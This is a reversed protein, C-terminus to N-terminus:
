ARSCRCVRLASYEVDDAPLTDRWCSTVDVLKAPLPDFLFLEGGKRRLYCVTHGRYTVVVGARSTSSAELEELLGALPCILLNEIEQREGGHILGSVERSELGHKEFAYVLEDAMMPTREGGRREFLKHGTVMAGEIAEDSLQGRVHAITVLCCVPTCILSGYRGYEVQSRYRRM